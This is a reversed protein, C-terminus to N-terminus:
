GTEDEGPPQLTDLPSVTRGIVATSVQVYGATTQISRHGLLVQITRIDTGGELLHTAFSHRLTHPTVRKSLGTASAAKALANRITSASVAADPRKGPFLLPGTPRFCRWYERLVTLLRASLMVYRDKRGKGHRVHILGRGSDIDGQELHRVEAVRLGGAYMAMILVWYKPVRIAALLATFEDLSLVDPLPKPVKPWPIHGAVHPRDLTVRYLFKLAAVVMKHTAPKVQRVRLLHLLYCRVEEIGMGAPSRMYHAAFRRAERLYEEKTREAHGRLELDAKMRDHLLGM